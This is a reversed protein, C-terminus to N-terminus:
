TNVRNRLMITATFVGLNIFFILALWFSPPLTVEILSAAILLVILPLTIANAILAGIASDFMQKEDVWVSVPKRRNKIGWYVAFSVLPIVALGSLLLMLATRYPQAVDSILSVIVSALGLFACVFGIQHMAVFLVDNGNKIAEFLKQEPARNKIRSYTGYIMVIFHLAIFGYLLLWEGSVDWLTYEKGIDSLLSVDSLLTVGSLILLAVYISHSFSSKEKDALTKLASVLLILHYIGIFIYAPITCNGLNRITDTLAPLEPTLRPQMYLFAAICYVIGLIALAALLNTIWQKNM